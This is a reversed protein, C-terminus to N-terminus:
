PQTLTDLPCEVSRFLKNSMHTYRMTTKITAHGLLEGIVRIDTGQELLHTAYSHRLLHPYVRKTIGARKAAESCARQAVSEGLHGKGDKRVFLWEGKPQYVRYYERLTALLTPSLQAYREQQGKGHRVRVLMRKSDIDTPALTLAEMLRLGAGYLLSLIAKERIGDVSLLLQHVEEKTLIVPFHKSLKPYAIREKLWEKDATYKYFFRLAGVTQRFYALSVKKEERLYQLYQRVHDLGLELPSKKFFEAYWAVQQLYVQETHPSYNRIRLDTRMKERLSTTKKKMATM